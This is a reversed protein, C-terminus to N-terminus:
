GHRGPADYVAPKLGQPLEFEERVENIDWTWRRGADLDNIQGVVCRIDVAITTSCLRTYATGVHMASMQFPANSPASARFEGPNTPAAKGSTDKLRGDVFIKGDSSTTVM